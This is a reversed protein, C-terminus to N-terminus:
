RGGIARESYSASIVPSRLHLLNLFGLSPYTFKTSATVVYVSAGRFRSLGNREVPNDIKTCKTMVMEATWGRVRAAGGSLSGRTALNKAHQEEVKWARSVADCPDPSRALFDAADHLGIAVLHQQYFLWSFELVGFVLAILLPMVVAGEILASGRQDRWLSPERRAFMDSRFPAEGIFNFLTSASAM